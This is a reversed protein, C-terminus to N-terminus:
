LSDDGNAPGISYLHKEGRIFIHKGAIALSANVNERLRNVAVIKPAVGKSIVMTTGELDTIFIHEGAGVPSAYISSLDGLRMAGPAENGSRLDVRTLINQYHALFYVGDDVLLMSPVYPTGRTRSWLVNDSGTIDGAAGEIQIALMIRKEYSSGVILVGQSFVPTAVINASMGGCEWIVNGTALDYSRVRETGAVVVQIQEGQEVILPTSWSTVEQRERKWVSEGSRKDLAVIFSQDEHDWNIVLTNGHLAPSAGEGHGHKSHMIGFQRQWVVEGAFDLCYVGHSGFSVYILQGDSIPSASALSATKHGGEIPLAERVVTKWLVEGSDRDLALVVFQYRSDVPLNDHEGPRGSMRPPLKEGMPIATTLVVYRETVLPTSHGRGPIETKWAINENDSWQTPPNANAVYGTANPGRWQMWQSQLEQAHLSSAFVCIFGMSHSLM